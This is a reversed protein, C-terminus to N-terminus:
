LWAKRSLNANEAENTIWMNWCLFIALGAALQSLVTFFVLPFEYSM